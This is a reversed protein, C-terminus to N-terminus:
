LGSISRQMNERTRKEAESLKPEEKVPSIYNTQPDFASDVPKAWPPADKPRENGFYYITM